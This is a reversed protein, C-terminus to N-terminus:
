SSTDFRGDVDVQYEVVFRHVYCIHVNITNIRLSFYIVYIIIYIILISPNNLQLMYAFKAVIRYSEESCGRIEDLAPECAHRGKPLIHKLDINLM